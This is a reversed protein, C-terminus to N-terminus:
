KSGREARFRALRDASSERPVGIRWGHYVLYDMGDKGKELVVGGSSRLAGVKVGAWLGVGLSALVVWLSYGSKVLKVVM